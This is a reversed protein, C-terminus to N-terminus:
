RGALPAGTSGPHSGTQLRGFTVGFWASVVLLSSGAEDAPANDSRIPAPTRRSKTPTLGPSAATAFCTGNASCGDAVPFGCVRGSGCDADTKCQAGADTSADPAACAGRHQLPKHVYGSPLDPCQDDVNSGDCACDFVPGNAACPLLLAPVCTGRASCANAALFGCVTGHPSTACDADTACGPGADPQAGADVPCAIGYAPCVEATVCTAPRQGCPGPCCVQGAACTTTDCPVGGGGGDQGSSADAGPGGDETGITFPGSSCGAAITATLGLLLLSSVPLKLLTRM